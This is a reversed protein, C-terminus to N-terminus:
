GIMAESPPSTLWRSDEGEPIRIGSYGHHIVSTVEMGCRQPYRHPVFVVGNLHEAAAVCHGDPEPDDRGEPAPPQTQWAPLPGVARFASYLLAGIGLAALLIAGLQAKSVNV